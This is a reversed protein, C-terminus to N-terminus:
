PHEQWNVGFMEQSRSPARTLAANGEHSVFGAAQEGLLVSSSQVLTADTAFVPQLWRSALPGTAIYRGPIGRYCSTNYITLPLKIDLGGRRSATTLTRLS